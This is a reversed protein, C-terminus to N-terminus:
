KAQVSTPQMKINIDARYTSSNIRGFGDVSVSSIKKQTQDPDVLNNFFTTLSDLNNSEISIRVEGKEGVSVTTVRVDSPVLNYLLSYSYAAFPQEQLLSNINDLRAKLSTAVGEKQKLAPSSVQIKANDLDKKVQSLIVGQSLRFALVVAAIAVIVVLFGISVTAVLVQRSKKKKQDELEPPLLNIKLNAM